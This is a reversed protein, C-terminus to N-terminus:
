QILSEAVRDARSFKRGIKRDGRARALDGVKGATQGHARLHAHRTLRKQSIGLFRGVQHEQRPEPCRGFYECRAKIGPDRTSRHMCRM